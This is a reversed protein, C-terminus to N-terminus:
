DRITICSVGLKLYKNVVDKYFHLEVNSYKVVARPFNVPKMFDLLDIIVEDQGIAKIGIHTPTPPLGKADNIPDTIPKTAYYVRALFEELNTIGSNISISTQETNLPKAKLKEGYLGSETPYESAVEWITDLVADARGRLIISVIQTHIFSKYLKSVNALDISLDLRQVSGYAMPNFVASNTTVSILDTVEYSIDRDLNLLFVRLRYGSNVGVWEPYAYLQVNYSRNADSVVLTYPVPITHRDYSTLMTTSEGADMKYTLVLPVRHGISTPSFSSIVDGAGGGVRVKDKGLLSFKTGDVIMETTTGDTYHVVGIPFYSDIPLTIPYRITTKDGNDLFVSRISINEIQKQLNWTERIYSTGEILAIAKGTVRGDSGYIVILCAEGDRLPTNTNCSPISKITRNKSPDHEEALVLRIDNGIFEGSNNFVQSIVKDNDPNTGRFIRATVSEDSYTRFFTDVTLTPPEQDADYYIRYNNDTSAIIETLSKDDDRNIKSLEPIYTQQDIRVVREMVGTHPHIVIDDPNPVIMNKGEQGMYVNFKSHFKFGKEPEYLPTIGDIGPPVPFKNGSFQPRDM